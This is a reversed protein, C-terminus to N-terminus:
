SNRFPASGKWLCPGETYGAQLPPFGVHTLRVYPGNSTPPKSPPLESSPFLIPTRISSFHSLTGFLMLVHLQLMSDVYGMGSQSHPVQGAPPVGAGRVPRDQTAFSALSIPDLDGAPIIQQPSETLHPFLSSSTPVANMRCETLTLTWTFVATQSVPFSRFRGQVGDAIARAVDAPHLPGLFILETASDGEPICQSPRLMGAHTSLGADSIPRLHLM